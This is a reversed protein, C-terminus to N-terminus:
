LLALGARAYSAVGQQELRERLLTLGRYLRTKVTSVPLELVEAIEVFTLDQYEKLVIVERQDDPLAAVAAAVRRALDNRQFQAHADPARSVLAPSAHGDEEMADLSAHNRLKRRRLKDRSLNLAIQYLWSSFRAESKFGALGRFAKLFAEQTVDRAEEESGVVRYVAGRIRREWRRVLEDFASSDGGQVAAVLEEDTPPFGM